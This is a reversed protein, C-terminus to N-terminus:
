DKEKVRQLRITEFEPFNLLKDVPEFLHEFEPMFADGEPSGYVRTLLLEGCMPLTQRYIEAGGAIFIKREGPDFTQLEELSRMLLAGPVDEPSAQRSIVITERGPLPRGISDWTKRGMVLVHGMTTRKFFKFDESLRWPIANGNGIVRNEAMAAIAIWNANPTTM